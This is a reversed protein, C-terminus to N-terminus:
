EGHSQKYKSEAVPSLFLMTHLHLCYASSVRPQDVSYNNRTEEKEESEKAPEPAIIATMTMPMMMMRATNNIMRFVYLLHPQM